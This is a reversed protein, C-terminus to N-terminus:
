FLYTFRKQVKKGRFGVLNDRRCRHHHLVIWGEHKGICPHVLEFINEKPIGRYFTGPNSIGLLAQTYGALVVVQLLHTVIRVVMGHEFHKPIPRKTIIELFFGNIPGPFQQNTAEMNRHVAEISSNKLSVGLIAYRNIGFRKGQPFFVKRFILNEKAVFLIIEPLHAVASGTAGARFDMYINTTILFPSFYTPSFHHILAMRLDYLDPVQDKDLEIALCVSLQFLERGFMDIRAHTEFPEAHHKLVFLGVIIRINKL